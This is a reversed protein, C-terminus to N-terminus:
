LISCIKNINNDAKGSYWRRKIVSKYQIFLLLKSFLIMDSVNICDIIDRPGTTGPDFKFKGRETTLAVAASKIGKLKIVHSEIVHVCSSCTM